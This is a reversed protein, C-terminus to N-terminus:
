ANKLNLLVLNDNLFVFLMYCIFSFERESSEDQVEGCM